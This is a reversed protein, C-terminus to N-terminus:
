YWTTPKIQTVPGDNPSRQDLKEADHIQGNEDVFVPKREDLNRSIDEINEYTDDRSM